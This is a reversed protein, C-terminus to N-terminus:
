EKCFFWGKLKQSLAEYFIISSAISVNMSEAKGVMPIKIIENSSKVYKDLVGNAENGIILAIKGFFNIEFPTKTGKLHTCIINFDEKKLIELIDDIECNEIIPINFLSGMTSRLTKDNYLDVCGKSLILGSVGLADASRIITGLNGPDTIRDLIVFFSDEKIDLNKFSDKKINCIAMAGQPSITESIKKFIDDLVIYIKANKFNEFVNNKNAYSESFVYYEIKTNKPILNIFREGEIIFLGTKEREKKTKLKIIQKIINNKTSSIM